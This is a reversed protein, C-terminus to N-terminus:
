APKTEECLHHFQRSLHDMIKARQTTLFQNKLYFISSTPMGPVNVATVCTATTVVVTIGFFRNPPIYTPATASAPCGLIM